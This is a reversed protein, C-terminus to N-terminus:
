SVHSTQVIGLWSFWERGQRDFEVYPGRVTFTSWDPAQRSFAVARAKLRDLVCWAAAEPDLLPMELAAQM